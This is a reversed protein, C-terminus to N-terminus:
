RSAETKGATSPSPAAVRRSRRSESKATVSWGTTTGTTRTLSGNKEKIKEKQAFVAVGTFTVLAAILVSRGLFRFM